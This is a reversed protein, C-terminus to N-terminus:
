QDRKKVAHHAELVDVRHEALPRQGCYNGYIQGRWQYKKAMAGARRPSRVFNKM